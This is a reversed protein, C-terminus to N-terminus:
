RAKETPQSRREESAGKLLVLRARARRRVSPEPSGKLVKRYLDIAQVKKDQLEYIGAVRLLARHVLVKERPYLYIVKLYEVVARPYRKGAEQLRGLEFQIRPRLERSVDGKMAAELHSLAAGLRRNKRAIRGLAYHSGAVLTGAEGSQVVQSFYREAADQDNLRLACNAAEYRAQTLLGHRPHNRVFLGYERVAGECNGLEALSAALRYRADGRIRSDPFRDLLDRFYDAAEAPKGELRKIEGIRFHVM